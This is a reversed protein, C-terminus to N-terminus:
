SELIAYHVKFNKYAAKMPAMQRFGIHGSKLLSGYTQGDDQWKLILLDNMKFRITDEYKILQMHYPSIADQVPPLPDGAQAVM